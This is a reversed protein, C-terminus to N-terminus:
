LWACCTHCFLPRLFGQTVVKIRIEIVNSKNEIRKVILQVETFLTLLNEKCSLQENQLGLVWFPILMKALM